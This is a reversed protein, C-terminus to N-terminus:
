IVNTLLLRTVSAWTAPSFGTPVRSAEDSDISIEIVCLPVPSPVSSVAVSFLIVYKLSPSGDTPPELQRVM